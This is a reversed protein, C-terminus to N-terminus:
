RKGAAPPPPPMPMTSAPGPTINVAVALQTEGPLLHVAFKDPGAYGRDPTYDIRTEDGVSHVYVKGHEPEGVLLGAAFPRPGPAAAAIACWGGDNAVSMQAQTPQGATFALREPVQCNKAAGQFDIAYRRTTSAAQPAPAQACSQLLLAGAVGGTLTVFRGFTVIRRM